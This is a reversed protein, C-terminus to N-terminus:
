GHEKYIFKWDSYRTGEIEATGDGITQRRRSLTPENSMSYVGMIGGDAARVLGWVSSDTMPDTYVRRLHRRMGVFRRDQALDELAVPYSKVAGPSSQYYLHIANVYAQGIQLLEEEKARYSANSWSEGLAALGVGFIALVYLMVVYTCGSQRWLFEGARM